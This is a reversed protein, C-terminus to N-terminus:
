RWNPMYNNGATTLQRLDGGLRHVTYIQFRGSRNSTFAIHRGNPAYAPSENHREGFTVQRVKRTAMDIIRIDFVNPATRSTYAIENYPAPSWTPRDCYSERTVPQAQGVGDASVVYIQPSGTRDSVFAIDTGSPAWAPSSDIAQNTTLRQMNSGDANMVYIEDNGDRNSVFAIRRGDPSFAPLSNMVRNSGRAPRQVPLAEFISAVFVDANGAAWSTFALRRRDPSWAPSINLNRNVTVRAQNEGDYDCVYIEKGTRDLVTGSVREGARDSDFAIKTRAVGKLARQQEFIEDSITHAFLRANVKRGAVASQDYQKSFVARGSVVNYLRVEVRVGNASRQVAGIVLGDAGLERWRDIPVDTTSRAPPISAYTDRPILDLEREYNLDDWLVRGILAAAAATEADATLALFDPVAFHPASGPSGTITLQVEPPQQPKQPPTQGEDLPRAFAVALALCAALAIVCFHFRTDPIV